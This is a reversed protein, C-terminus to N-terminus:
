YPVDEFPTIVVLEGLIETEALILYDTGDFAQDYGSFKGYLVKAGLDYETCEKGKAVVTGESPKAHIDKAAEITYESGEIKTEHGKVEDPLVLYRLKNPRFAVTNNM